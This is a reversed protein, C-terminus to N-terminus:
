RAMPVKGAALAELVKEKPGYAMVKGGDVVMVMNVLSLLSERHTVVLLTRNGLERVLRTKVREESSHDM